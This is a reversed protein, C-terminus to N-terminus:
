RQKGDEHRQERAQPVHEVEVGLRRSHIPMERTASEALVDPPSAAHADRPREVPEFGRQPHQETGRALCAAVHPSPDNVGEALRKLRPDWSSRFLTTYPFLPSRPPRRFLLFFFIYTIAIRSVPLYSTCLPHPSL